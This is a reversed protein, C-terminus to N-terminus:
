IVSRFFELLRMQFLLFYTRLWVSYEEAVIVFYFYGAVRVRQSRAAPISM